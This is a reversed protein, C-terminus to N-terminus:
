DLSNQIGVVIGKTMEKFLVKIPLTEVIKQFSNEVFHLRVAACDASHHEVCVCSHIGEDRKSEHDVGCKSSRWGSGGFIFVGSSTRICDFGVCRISPMLIMVVISRVHIIIHPMSALIVPIPLDPDMIVTKAPHHFQEIGCVYIVLRLTAASLCCQILNMWLISSKILLQIDWLQNSEKFILLELEKLGFNILM